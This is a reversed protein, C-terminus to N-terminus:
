CPALTWGEAIQIQSSVVVLVHVKDIRVAFADLTNCEIPNNGVPLLIGNIGRELCLIDSVKKLPLGPARVFISDDTMITRMYGFLTFRM